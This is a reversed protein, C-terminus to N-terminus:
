RMRQWAILSHGIRSATVNASPFLASLERRSLLHIDEWCGKQLRGLKMKKNVRKLLSRPLYQGFPLLYHPEFPFWYNPTTIFYGQGTVRFVENAFLRQRELGGVHEIVANSFVYDVKDIEKMDCGDAVIWQVNSYNRTLGTDPYLNLVIVKDFFRYIEEFEGWIGEGGGVDLLTSHRSPQLVEFFM